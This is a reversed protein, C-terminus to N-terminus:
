DDGRQKKASSSYPVVNGHPAINETPLARADLDATREVLHPQATVPYSQEAPVASQGKRLAKETRTCAGVVLYICCCAPGSIHRRLGKAGGWRRCLPGGAPGQGPQAEQRGRHDQKRHDEDEVVAVVLGGFVDLAAGCQDDRPKEWLPAQM